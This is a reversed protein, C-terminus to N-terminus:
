PNLRALFLDGYAQAKKAGVGSVVAGVACLAAAADSTAIVNGPLEYGTLHRPNRRTANVAYAVEASRCWLRVEAAQGAMLGAFATGWSGSGVVCATPLGAAM